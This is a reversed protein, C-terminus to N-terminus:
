RCAAAAAAAAATLPVLAAARIFAVVEPAMYGVTGVMREQSMTRGDATSKSSGEPVLPDEGGTPSEVSSCSPLVRALGFDTV